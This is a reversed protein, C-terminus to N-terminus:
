PDKLQKETVEVPQKFMHNLNMGFNYKKNKTTWYIFVM